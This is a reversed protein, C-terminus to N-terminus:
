RLNIKRTLNLSLKYPLLQLLKLLVTFRKPFHIEFRKSLLGDAIEKAAQAPEIIMPMKFENKDTLPTRVFGPSILKIDVVDKCEAHLSEALNIIAAKTASYPQGGPLGIYGAVSGCLALQGKVPQTKLIPLVAHVLNFAGTLNIDVIGKTVALDLAGIKMPAYAAALFVVRDIRGFAARIAKATRLTTAADTTDLAFVNHRDGLEHNLQELEDKRRASLALTAGRAALERALAAGIGSSAGIIWVVQDKYSANM